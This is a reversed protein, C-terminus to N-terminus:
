ATRSESLLCIAQAPCEESTSITSRQVRSTTAVRAPFCWSQIQERKGIWDSDSELEMSRVAETSPSITKQIISNGVVSVSLGFLDLKNGGFDGSHMGRDEKITSPPVITWAAIEGLKFVIRTTHLSFHISKVAELVRRKNSIGAGSPFDHHPPEKM